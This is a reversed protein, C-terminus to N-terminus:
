VSLEVEKIKNVSPSYTNIGQETQKGELWKTQNELAKASPDLDRSKDKLIKLVSEEIEMLYVPFEKNSAKSRSRREPVKNGLEDTAFKFGIDLFHQVRSLHEGNVWRRYFGTKKPAALKYGEGGLVELPRVVFQKGDPSMIVNGANRDDDRNTKHNSNRNDNRENM